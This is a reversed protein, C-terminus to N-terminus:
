MSLGKLFDKGFKFNPTVSAQVYKHLSTDYSVYSMDPYLIKRGCECEGIEDGNDLKTIIEFHKYRPDSHIFNPDGANLIKM